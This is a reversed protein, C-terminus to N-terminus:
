KNISKVEAVITGESLNVEITDGVSVSDSSTVVKGGCKTLSYGRQLVRMPNLDSVSQIVRGLENEAAVLRRHINNSMAESLRQCENEWQTIRGRPSHLRIDKELLELSRQKDSLKQNILM